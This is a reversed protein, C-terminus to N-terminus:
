LNNWQEQAYNNIVGVSEELTHINRSIILETKRSVRGDEVLEKGADKAAEIIDDVNSGNKSEEKFFGASPRLLHGVCELDTKECFSHIEEIITKFNEMNWFGCTSVLVIKKVKVDDYFTLRCQGDVIKVFPKSMPLVRDLFNKLPGSMGVAYIPSALVWVESEKLRKIVKNMEDNQICKGPTKYWCSYEGDCPHLNLTKTYYLKVDAGAENLGEIFPRLIMSTNGCRRRPSSNIATVQM